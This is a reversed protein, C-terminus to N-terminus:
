YRNLCSIQSSFCPMYALQAMMNQGKKKNNNKGESHPNNPSSYIAVTAKVEQYYLATPIHLVSSSRQVQTVAPIATSQCKLFLM